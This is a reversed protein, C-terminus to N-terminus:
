GGSQLVFIAPTDNLGLRRAHQDALANLEPFQKRSVRVGNGRVHGIHLGHAIFFIIIGLILYTILTGAIPGGNLITLALAIYVLLSIVVCVAFYFREKPYILSELVLPRPPRTEPPM